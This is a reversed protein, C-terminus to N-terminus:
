DGACSGPGCSDCCSTPADACGGKAACRSADSKVKCKTGKKGALCCTVFGPRGCTSRVACGGATRRCDRPLAGERGLQKLLTKACRVYAGHSRATACGCTEEVALRAAGLAVPDSCTALSLTTSTTSSTSTTAVSTSTTSAVTSTTSVAATSTTSTSVVTSTTSAAPVVEAVANLLPDLSIDNWFSARGNTEAPSTIYVYDDNGNNPEGAAWNTYVVPEGNTWVFTGETAEDTLGIWLYRNQGDFTAFTEYVWVQEDADGIATLHGGLSVAEAEADAWTATGLLYYLHGNAPNAIPGGIVAAEVAQAHLAM